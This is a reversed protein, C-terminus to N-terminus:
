LQQLNNWRSEIFHQRDKANHFQRPFPSAWSPSGPDNNIHSRRTMRQFQQSVELKTIAPFYHSQYFEFLVDGYHPALVPRPPPDAPVKAADDAAHACAAAALLAALPFLRLRM